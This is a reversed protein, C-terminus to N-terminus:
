EQYSNNDSEAASDRSCGVLRPMSKSSILYVGFVILCVGITKPWTVNESLTPWLVSGVYVLVYTFGLFAYAKGLEFQRLALIWFGTAAVYSILGFILIGLRVDGFMKNALTQVFCILWVGCDGQAVTQLELPTFASKLVLQSM